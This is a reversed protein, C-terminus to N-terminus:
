RKSVKDHRRCVCACICASSCLCLQDQDSTLDRVPDPDRRLCEKTLCSRRVCHSFRYLGVVMAPAEECNTSLEQVNAKLAANLNLKVSLNGLWVLGTWDWQQSLYRLTDCPM